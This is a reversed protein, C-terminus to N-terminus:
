APVRLFGRETLPRVVREDLAQRAARTYGDRGLGGFACAPEFYEDGLRDTAEISADIAAVSDAAARALWRIDDASLRPALWDLYAWGLRGHLAEDRAIRGRIPKLIDDKEANWLAALMSQAWTESICCTTIVCSAVDLEPRRGSGQLAAPFLQAPQYALPASAGLAQAVRSCLEAHALEDLPFSSAVASFDLPAQTVVMGRFLQAHAEVSAYEQLAAEAWGQQALTRVRPDLAAAKEGLEDWPVELVDPRLRRYQHEMPGGHVSLGFVDASV